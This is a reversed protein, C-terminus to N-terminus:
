SVKEVSEVNVKTVEVGYKSILSNVASLKSEDFEVENSLEEYTKGQMNLIYVSNINTNIYTNLQESTTYTEIFVKSDVVKYSYSGSVSLRMGGAVPDRHSIATRSAFKNGTVEDYNIFYCKEVDPRNEDTIELLGDTYEKWESNMDVYIFRQNEGITVNVDEDFM